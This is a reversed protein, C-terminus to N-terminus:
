YSFDFDGTVGAKDLLPLTHSFDEDTTAIYRTVDLSKRVEIAERSNDNELNLLVERVRAVAEKDTKYSVILTNDPNEGVDQGVVAINPYNNKVADWVRNKVIAVDAVGKALAEIAIGHSGAKMLNRERGLFSRAFFEGSTALSSCMIKKGAFYAPDGTFPPSGAPALVVAWYTSWGEQNVPRLLPYAVKKIMMAGAVGSGAFMADVDGNEFKMAADNYNRYGHLSVDIGHTKFLDMLPKYQQAVGARDQMIGIKFEASRAPQFAILISLSALLTIVFSKKM